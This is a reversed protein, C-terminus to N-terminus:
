KVGIVLFLLVTGTTSEEVGAAEVALGTKGFGIVLLDKVVQSDGPALAEITGTKSKGVFFLKGDLTISWSINTLNATGTNKIAASVGLGGKITITLSPIEQQITFTSNKETETNGAKDVSYFFVTHNGNASVVFPTTFNTWAGSDLKYKTYDVGSDDDTRTLTVTVDSVYVGGEIDGALTCITVPPTTDNWGGIKVTIKELTSFDGWERVSNHGKVRYYYTGNSKGTINYFLNTISSSLTTVTEVDTVPAIDDVYFGEQL